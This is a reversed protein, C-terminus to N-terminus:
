YCTEELEDNQQIHENLFLFISESVNGNAGSIIMVMILDLLPSLYLFLIKIFEMFEFGHIKGM